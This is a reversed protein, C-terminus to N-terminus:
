SRIRALQRRPLSRWEADWRDEMDLALAQRALLTAQDAPVSCESGPANANAAQAAELLRRDQRLVAPESRSWRLRPGVPLFRTMLWELRCSTPGTPVMTIIIHMQRRGGGPATLTVRNPLDFRIVMRPIAEPESTEDSEGYLLFGRATLRTVYAYERFGRWLHLSFM